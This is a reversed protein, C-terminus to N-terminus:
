LASTKQTQFYVTVRTEGKVRIKIGRRYVPEIPNDEPTQITVRRDALTNPKTVLRQNEDLHKSTEVRVGTFRPSTSIAAQVQNWMEESMVLEDSPYRLLWDIDEITM